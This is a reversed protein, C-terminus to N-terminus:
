LTQNECDGLEAPPNLEDSFVEMLTKIYVDYPGFTVDGVPSKELIARFEGSWDITNEDNWLENFWSLHTHPMNEGSPPYVVMPVQDELSNLETNSTLGAKTFNSSGIIGISNQDKENGFIYAKAHLRKNGNDNKFIKIQLRGENIMKSMEKSVIRFRNADKLKGYESLDYEIYDKPFTLKGLDFNMTERYRQIPSIPEEGIILRVKKYNKISEIIEITGELDWYGTAISLEDHNSAQEKILNALIVRKNDILKPLKM